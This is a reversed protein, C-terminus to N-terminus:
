GSIIAYDGEKVGEDSFMDAYDKKDGVLHTVEVEMCCYPPDYFQWINKDQDLKQLEAIFERITMTM